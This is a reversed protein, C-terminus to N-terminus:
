KEESMEDRCHKCSDSVMDKHMFLHLYYDLSSQQIKLQLLLNSNARMLMYVAVFAIINVCLSIIVTVLALMVGIGISVLIMSALVAVSLPAAEYLTDRV